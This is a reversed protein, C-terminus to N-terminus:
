SFIAWAKRRQESEGATVLNHFARVMETAEARSKGKLKMTMM